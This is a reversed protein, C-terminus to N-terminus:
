EKDKLAACSIRVLARRRKAEVLGKATESLEGSALKDEARKLANKARELDIEDAWEFTTAILKADNNIMSFVGGICAAYRHKGDIMINAPGMGVSTLFNVHGHLVTVAGETSRISVSEVEGDYACGDMTVITLHFKNM